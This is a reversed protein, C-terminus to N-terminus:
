YWHGAAKPRSHTSVYKGASKINPTFGLRRRAATHQFKIRITFFAHHEVLRRRAATHQFQKTLRATDLMKIGAAKPRSHTSVPRRFSASLRM